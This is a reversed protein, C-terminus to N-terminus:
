VKWGGENLTEFATEIRDLSIPRLPGNIGRGRGMARALASHATPDLDYLAKVFGLTLKAAVYRAILVEQRAAREPLDSAEAAVAAVKRRTGIRGFCAQSRLQRVRPKAGTEDADDAEDSLDIEVDYKGRRYLAFDLLKHERNQNPMDEWTLGNWKQEWPEQGPRKSVRLVTAWRSPITEDRTAKRPGADAGSRLYVAGRQRTASM